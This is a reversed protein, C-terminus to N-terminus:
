KWVTKLYAPIASAERPGVMVEWGSEEQLKGSMVSVYGPIVVKKHSVRDALGCTKLMKAVKESTLKDAAFATLVSMGETDVVMIFSPVKSSEVEPEVTFYTLSFNTTVLVPSKDSVSGIEYVKSEVQIPKRPDTYINQRAALLPLIEWPESGRLIVIGQYKLIASAAVALEWTADDTDTFAITAYGLPRFTKKVALRRAHTADSLGAKPSHNGPDIVLDEVGLAKIKPTLDTLEDLGKAVVALACSNAKALKAMEAHNVANAAYILPKRGAAAKLGAEMAKPDTSVLVLSRQSKACVATVAKAFTDASGSKNVVAILEVKIKQAVREFELKNIREIRAALENAPLTDAVEIGIGCPHWFTQDHRFMVTENGIELKNDGTGITVLRQPPASAGELADKAQASVDPCKDLSTKKQALAMAFALCTPMGCKACNTKPLLKYIDLGTLAM